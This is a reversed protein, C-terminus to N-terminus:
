PQFVSVKKSLLFEKWFLIRAIVRYKTIHVQYWCWFSCYKAKYELLGFLIAEGCRVWMLLKMKELKSLQYVIMRLYIGM